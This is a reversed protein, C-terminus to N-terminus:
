RKLLRPVQALENVRLLLLAALYASLGALTGIVLTLLRSAVTAPGWVTASWSGAIACAAAALLGALAVRAVFGLLAPAALATERRALLAYLIVAHASNQIANALALGPMGLPGVTSFAVLLYILAGAAGVLVPTGTNKRAYFAVILLQDIVVFPLQPAYALFARATQETALLDFANREFLVGILEHRLVVLTVSIPVILLLVGKLCSLLLAVFAERQDESAALRSLSPLIAISAAAGVLGIPFQILTTAFAMAAVSSEGTRWALNTDVIVIAYSALMGLFVPAYLRLMLRVGPHRLDIVPLYRLGRWASLQLIVQLAGGVILGFTLAYVGMGGALALTSVIIGVNYAAAAFAAIAFRGNAQLVATHIAALGLLVISPLAVRTLGVALDFHEPDAGLATVLIPAGAALLAVIGGVGVVTLNVLTSVIRSLEATRGASAYDSFVPVFASTIAGALLLDYAATSVRTATRFASTPGTAGFLAAIVQERLLGLLRSAVNGISVLLAASAVRRGHSESDTPATM